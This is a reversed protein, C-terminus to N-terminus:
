IRKYLAILWRPKKKKPVIKLFSRLIIKIGLFIGNQNQRSDTEIKTLPKNYGCAPCLFGSAQYTRNLLNNIKKMLRPWTQVVGIKEVKVLEFGPFLYALTEERFSRLHYSANFKTECYPCQTFIREEDNPVTIIITKRAVRAMEELAREYTRYPLHELVELAVVVDFSRDEFRLNSANGMEVQVHLHEKAYNVKNDSIEIGIGKINLEKELLHLFVGPGAGVDLVTKTGSPIHRIVQSFREMEGPNNLIREKVYEEITYEGFDSYWKEAKNM